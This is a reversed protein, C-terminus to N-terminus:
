ERSEKRKEKRANERKETMIDEKKQRRSRAHTYGARRNRVGRKDQKTV